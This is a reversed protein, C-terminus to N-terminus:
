FGYRKSAERRKAKGQSWREELTDRTEVAHMLLSSLQGRNRARMNTLRESQLKESINWEM